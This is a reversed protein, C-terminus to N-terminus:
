DDARRPSDPSPSPQGSEVTAGDAERDSAIFGSSLIAVSGKVGRPRSGTSVLSISSSSCVSTNEAEALAM